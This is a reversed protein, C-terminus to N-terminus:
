NMKLLFGCMKSCRESRIITFLDNYSNNLFNCLEDPRRVIKSINNQFHNSWMIRDYELHFFIWNIGIKYRQDLYIRILITSLSSHEYTRCLIHMRGELILMNWTLVASEEESYKACLYNLNSRVKSVDAKHASNTSNVASINYFSAFDVFCTGRLSGIFISCM